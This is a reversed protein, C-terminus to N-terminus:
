PCWRYTMIHPRNDSIAVTLLTKHGGLQKIQWIATEQWSNGEGSCSLQLRVSMYDLDNKHKRVSRIRCYSEVATFERADIHVHTDDRNGEWDSKKCTINDNEIVQWVGQFRQPLGQAQAAEASVAFACVITGVSLSIARLM